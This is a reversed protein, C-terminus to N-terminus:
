QEPINDEEIYEEIGLVDNSEEVSIEGINRMRRQIISTRKQIAETSTLAATIKKQTKEVEEDMKSFQAKIAELLKMVELSKKSLAANRFGQKLANLLATITTPGAIMVGMEQCKEALGDIRLVEAYLGETPLFLIGYNTTMPPDIYKDRINRADTLVRGKLEQTAAAVKAADGETSADVIKNYIDSPFKSDIPMYIQESLDDTPFKIAFEVRDSSNKKTAINEEYQSPAMIQELINKLQVEGWTGRTKVNSLTKNLDSVGTSLSQLEGLSKYLKGLQDGVQKFNADLRENLTKDLKEAVVGRIEDLKKENAEQMRAQNTQMSETLKSLADSVTKQIEILSTGQKETSELIAKNMKESDATLIENMKVSNESLVKNIKESNDSLEKSMKASNDTLTKNMKESNDSLVTKMDDFKIDSNNQAKELSTRITESLKELTETIDKKMGFLSETQNKSMKDLTEKIENEMKELSETQNKSSKDLTERIQNQMKGLSEIQDKSSKDLTEDIKDEMDNLADYQNKAMTMLSDTLNKQSTTQNEAIQSLRAKTESIDDKLREFDNAYAANGTDKTRHLIMISIILLMILIFVIIIETTM